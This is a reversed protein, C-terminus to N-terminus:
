TRFVFLSDCTTVALMGPTIVAGDFQFCAKMDYEQVETETDIHNNGDKDNIAYFKGNQNGVYVTGIADVVPSSWPGPYCAGKKNKWARQLWGENDGAQAPRHWPPAEWEWVLSGNSPDLAGVKSLLTPNHFFTQQAADSLQRSKQDALVAEGYSSSINEFIPFTLIMNQRGMPVVLLEKMDKGLKGLVPYTNPLLPVETRWLAQGDSLRSAEVWGTSNSRWQDLPDSASVSFVVGSAIGVGGDSFEVPTGSKWMLSGDRLSLRYVGGKKDQFVCTGDEPFVVELNWTPLDPHFTWLLQGDSANVAAITRSGGEESGTDFGAIAVGEGVTTYGSDDGGNPGVKSQWVINGTNIDAAWMVGQESSGIIKNDWLAPSDDVRKVSAPFPIQLLTEGDPSIKFVGDDAATVYLNGEYDVLPGGVIMGSFRGEPLTWNWAFSKALDEPGPQKSVHFSTASQGWKNPWHHLSIEPKDAVAQQMTLKSSVQTKMATQLLFVNEADNEIGVCAADGCNAAADISQFLIFISCWSVLIEKLTM